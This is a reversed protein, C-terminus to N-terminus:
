VIGKKNFNWTVYLLSFSSSTLRHYIIRPAFSVTIFSCPFNSVRKLVHSVIWNQQGSVGSADGHCARLLDWLVAGIGQARPHAAVATVWACAAGARGCRATRGDLDWCPQVVLMTTLLILANRLAKCPVSAPSFACPVRTTNILLVIAAVLM